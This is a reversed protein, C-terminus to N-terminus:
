IHNRDKPYDEPHTLFDILPPVKEDADALQNRAQTLKTRLRFNEGALKTTERVLDDRNRKLEDGRVGESLLSQRAEFLQKSLTGIEAKAWLLPDIGTAEVEDDWGLLGMIEDYFFQLQEKNMM